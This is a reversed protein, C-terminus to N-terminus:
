PQDGNQLDKCNKLLEERLLTLARAVTYERNKDRNGTFHFEEVRVHGKVNCGVYVLGVPKEETGGGPGAIGTVSVAADAGGAKAAGRAMECATQCSVAGHEMLTERKVGLLREKADNAYTIYGERYVGSAGPVNMIRGALLGGTCSEATTVTMGQGDLLEVISAELTVDEETTYIKDGFRQYLEDVVPSLLEKAKEEDAAKATVRLHVEGTKAYPAITPNTQADMLDAIMTEAKSEGIGCIKVMKSYIGEPELQNLYPAIDREFMPMLENPPGPLLIATKGDAEIILGPATGNHNDIVKAGEPVMAQKWNNPTVQGSRVRRFYEKIREKTHEDEYLERGFVKATVEKTLDDKTPGLGGSLILIDSRSLGLRVTEMLREENDGVVSQHYCSLGLAACRESLYAANTNVINGLLIETGVSIFEVTM